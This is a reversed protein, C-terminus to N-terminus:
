GQLCVMFAKRAKKDITTSATGQSNTYEVVEVQTDIGEADSIGDWESGSEKEDGQGEQESESAESETTQATKVSPLDLPKFQSEFYRRFIDHANDGAADESRAEDTEAKDSRSVVATERKRKM